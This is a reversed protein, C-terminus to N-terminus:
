EEELAEEAENKEEGGEKEPLPPRHREKEDKNVIDAITQGPKPEDGSIEKILEDSSQGTPVSASGGAVEEEGQVAPSKTPNHVISEHDGERDELPGPRPDKPDNPISSMNIVTYWKM